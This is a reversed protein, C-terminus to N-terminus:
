YAERIYRCGVENTIFNDSNLEGSLSWKGSDYLPMVRTEYVLYTPEVGVEPELKVPEEQAPKKIDVSMSLPVPLSFEIGREGVVEV